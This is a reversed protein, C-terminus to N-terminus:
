VSDAKEAAPRISSSDSSTLWPSSPDDLWDIGGSDLDGRELRAILDDLWDLQARRTALRCSMDLYFMEPKGQARVAEMGATMGDLEERMRIRRQRLLEVVRRRPLGHAESLALYLEPYEAPHRALIEELSERLADRGADTISYVTREPRNGERVVEHVEILGNVSLRDVSHYLTGPRFKLLRDERRETTTQLMEYPHMPRECLLGLVLIAMPALPRCSNEAM